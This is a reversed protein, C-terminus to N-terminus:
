HTYMNNMYSVAHKFNVITQIFKTYVIGYLDFLSQCSYINIYNFQNQQLFSRM